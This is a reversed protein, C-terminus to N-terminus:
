FLQHQVMKLYRKKLMAIVSEVILDPKFIPDCGNEEKETRRPHCSAQHDIELYNVVNVNTLGRLIIFGESMWCHNGKDWCSPGIIVTADKRLYVSYYAASGQDSIYVDINSFYHVQQSLPLNVFELMEIEIPQDPHYLKLYPDLPIRTKLAHYIEDVNHIAKGHSNNLIPKKHIVVKIPKKQLYPIIKSLDNEESPLPQIGLRDYTLQRYFTFVFERTPFSKFLAETGIRFQSFCAALTVHQPSPESVLPIDEANRCPLQEIFYKDNTKCLQLIPNSSVLKSVEMTINNSLSVDYHYTGIWNQLSHDFLDDLFLVHNNLLKKFNELTNSFTFEYDMMQTVAMAINEFIFHGMNGSAYRKLAYVPQTLYLFNPDLKVINKFAENEEEENDDNNKIVVIPKSPYGFQLTLEQDLLRVRFDGRQSEHRGQSYTWVQESLQKYYDSENGRFARTRPHFLVFEGRTTLCLDNFRCSYNYYSQAKEGKKNCQYDGSLKIHSHYKPHRVQPVSQQQQNNGEKLVISSEHQQQKHIIQYYLCIITTIFTCLFLLKAFNLKKRTFFSSNHLFSTVFNSLILFPRTMMMM